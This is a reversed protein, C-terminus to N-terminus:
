RASWNSTELFITLAKSACSCLTSMKPHYCSAPCRPLIPGIQRLTNRHGPQDQPTRDTREIRNRERYIRKNWRIQAKRNSKPPICPRIGATQLAARIANSDHGKDALLYAPKEDALAMVDEFATLDHVEGSTLHFALPIGAADSLCHVKCTFGGRSRGFAQQRTERKRRRGLCSRSGYDFQHQPSFQQGNGPRADYRGSGLHGGREM